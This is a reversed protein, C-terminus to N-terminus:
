LPLFLDLCSARPAKEIDGVAPAPLFVSLPCKEGERARLSSFAPLWPAQSCLTPARSVQESVAKTGEFNQIKKKETNQKLHPSRPSM